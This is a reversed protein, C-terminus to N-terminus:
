TQTNDKEVKTGKAIKQSLQSIRASLLKNETLLVDKDHKLKDYM